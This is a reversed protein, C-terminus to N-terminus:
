EKRGWPSYGALSRQGHSEGRLFVPIPQWKRRWPMKRVWADFKPRRANVPPNKVVSGSPFRWDLDMTSRMVLKKGLGSAESNMLYILGSCKNRKNMRDVKRQNIKKNPTQKAMLCTPDQNGLRPDFGPGRCQPCVTRVV